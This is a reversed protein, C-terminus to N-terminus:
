VADLWKFRLRKYNLEISGIELTRDLFLSDVGGLSLLVLHNDIFHRGLYSESAGWELCLCSMELEKLREQFTCKM